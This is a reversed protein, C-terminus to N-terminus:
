QRPLILIQGEKIVSSDLKNLKKLYYVYERIDMSDPKHASAISWLTDGGHVEVQEAIYGGEAGSIGAYVNVLAGSLLIFLIAISLVLVRRVLRPSGSRGKSAPNRSAASNARSSRFASINSYSHTTYM